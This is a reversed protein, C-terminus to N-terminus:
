INRGVLRAGSITITETDDDPTRAITELAAVLAAMAASAGAGIILADQGAIAGLAALDPTPLTFEYPKQTTNGIYNFLVKLERQAMPDAPLLSSILTADGVWQDKALVGLTAADMATKLAAYETLFGPLSIVTIAGNYVRIRSLEDSFDRFSTVTYHNAMKGDM